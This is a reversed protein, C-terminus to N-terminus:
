NNREKSRSDRSARFTVRRVQKEAPSEGSSLFRVESVQKQLGLEAGPDDRIKTSNLKFRDSDFVRVRRYINENLYNPHPAGYYHPQFPV